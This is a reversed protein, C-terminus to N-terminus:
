LIRLQTDHQKPGTYGHSQLVSYVICKCVSIHIVSTFRQRVIVKYTRLPYTFSSETSLPPSPPATRCLHILAPFPSRSSSYYRDVQLDRRIAMSVAFSRGGATTTTKDAHRRENDRRKARPTCTSFPRLHAFLMPPPLPLPPLGGFNEMPRTTAYYVCHFTNKVM